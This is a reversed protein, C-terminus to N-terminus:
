TANGIAVDNEVNITIWFGRFQVDFYIIATTSGANAVM